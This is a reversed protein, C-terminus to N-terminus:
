VSNGALAHPGTLSFPGQENFVSSNGALSFLTAQWGPRPEETGELWVVATGRKGPTNHLDQPEEVAM